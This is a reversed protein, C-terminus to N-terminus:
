RDEDDEGQHACMQTGIQSLTDDREIRFKQKYGAEIYYSGYFKYIIIDRIALKKSAFHTHTNDLTISLSSGL